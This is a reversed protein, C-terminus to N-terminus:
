TKRLVEALEKTSLVRVKSQQKLKADNSWIPVNLKLALSFYQIDDIDPSIEKAEPIFEKFKEPPVFEVVTKILELILLFQEENLGFKEKIEEKHEEIEELLFTPSFVRVDGSLIIERAKSNSNFFSFIVNANVVLLM